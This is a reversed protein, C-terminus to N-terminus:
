RAAGAAYVPSVAMRLPVRWSPAALARAEEAKTVTPLLEPVDLAVRSMLPNLWVIASGLPPDLPPRIVLVLAVGATRVRVPWGAPAVTNLWFPDYKPAIEPM